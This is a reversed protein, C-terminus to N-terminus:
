AAYLENIELALRLAAPSNPRVLLLHYLRRADDLRTLAEDQTRGAASIPGAEAVVLGRRIHLIVEDHCRCQCCSRPM